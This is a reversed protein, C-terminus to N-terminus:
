VNPIDKKEIHELVDISIIGDFSKGKYPIKRVDGESFYKRKVGIINRFVETSIDIGFGSINKARLSMVFFGTGCGIDLIRKAKYDNVLELIFKERLTYIPHFERDPGKRWFSKFYNKDFKHNMIKM